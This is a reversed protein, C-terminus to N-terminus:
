ARPVELPVPFALGYRWVPHGFDGVTPRVDCVDGMGQPDVTTLVSGEKVLWLRRRRQAPQGPSHLYGAVSDLAYRVHAGEIAAPLETARPHYRSLTVMPAGRPAEQWAEDSGAHWRFAGLGASREGGLGADGLISLAQELEERWLNGDAPSEVRRWAVPFWLGCGAAYAVRGTYYIESGRQSRDVTVRPLQDDRFVDLRELALPPRSRARVTGPLLRMWDPLAAAEERTLWLAGGQLLAAESKASSPDYAALSRGAVILDWIARSVYRIKRLRKIEVQPLGYGALNVLPRPYFRVGGAFPWTSGLWFPADQPDAFAHAWRDPLTGSEMASVFLAAYLTDSPAHPLTTEQEIGRGGVHLMTGPELYYPTVQV